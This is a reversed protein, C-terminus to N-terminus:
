ILYLIFFVKEKLFIIPFFYKEYIKLSENCFKQSEL